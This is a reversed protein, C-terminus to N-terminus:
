ASLEQLYGSEMREFRFRGANQPAKREAAAPPATTM